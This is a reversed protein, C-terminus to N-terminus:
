GAHMAQDLGVKELLKVLVTKVVRAIVYGILLVILFGILKPIFEVFSDLGKQVSAGVDVAGFIPSM